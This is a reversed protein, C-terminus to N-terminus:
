SPRRPHCCPHCARCRAGAPAGSAAPAALLKGTRSAEEHTRVYLGTAVLADVHAQLELAQEWAEERAQERTEETQGKAALERGHKHIFEEFMHSFPGHGIDHVLGALKVCLIDEDDICLEPQCARLHTAAVGALHAVGISHEKRTHNASPYVYVSGGLQKIDALRQYQPTDLVRILLPELKIPGYLRDQIEKLKGAVKGPMTASASIHSAAMLAETPSSHSSGEAAPTSIPQTSPESCDADSTQTAGLDDHEGAVTESHSRKM